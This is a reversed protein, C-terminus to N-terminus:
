IYYKLFYNELADTFYVDVQICYVSIIVFYLNTYQNVGIVLGFIGGLLDQNIGFVFFEVFTLVFNIWFMVKLLNYTRHISKSDVLAM